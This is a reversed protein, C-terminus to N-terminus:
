RSRTLLCVASWPMSGRPADAEPLLAFPRMRLPLRGLKGAAKLLTRVESPTWGYPAFFSPGQYPAFLFPADAAQLAGGLQQKMMELLSPSVLDVVWYHFGPARSLDQALGGVEYPMLYILLGESIVAAHASERGLREFLGRRADGNSLDLRVREVACVPTADGLIQEKYDLIEPLDVEVWRLTPPLNMRYPRTDLGAALNVITDVGHKALRAVFRDFLYTRAVFSWEHENAAAMAQAIRAGREGGLARAYPDRFAADDRESEQARFIAMWRATDSVNRILPGDAM